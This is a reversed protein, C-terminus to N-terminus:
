TDKTQEKGGGGEVQRHNGTVSLTLTPRWVDVASLVPEGRPRVPGCYVGRQLASVGVRQWLLKELLSYIIKTGRRTM